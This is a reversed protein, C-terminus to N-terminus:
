CEFTFILGQASRSGVHMHRVESHLVSPDFSLFSFFTYRVFYVFFLLRRAIPTEEGSEDIVMGYSSM